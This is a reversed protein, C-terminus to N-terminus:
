SYVRYFSTGELNKKVTYNVQYAWSLNTHLIIGLYKRSSVEEIDWLLYNLPGTVQVKMFCIATSNTPNIIM